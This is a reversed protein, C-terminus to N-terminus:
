RRFSMLLAPKDPLTIEGCPVFGAAAFAAISPANDVDPEALVQTCQPDADLLGAAVAQLLVRGLGHGTRAPDGIAIHLGLDHPEHECHEALVDRGVRYVELYAVDEGDFAVLCPLSHRGALQASLEARWRQLPWDQHWFKEVHPEAMWRRILMLDDAGGPVRASWPAALVPLPPAPIV